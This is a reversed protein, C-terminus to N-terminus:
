RASASASLAALATLLLKRPVFQPPDQGVPGASDSGVLSMGIPSM